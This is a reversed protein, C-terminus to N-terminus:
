SSFSVFMLTFAACGPQTFVSIPPASAGISSAVGGNALTNFQITGGHLVTAGTYSNNTLLSVMGSGAKNMSKTGTISGAGAGALGAAIPGAIVLGLGPIVLTTGIAAIIGACYM